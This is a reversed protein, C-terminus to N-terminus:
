NPLLNNSQVVPSVKKEYFRAEIKRQLTALKCTRRQSAMRLVNYIFRPGLQLLRYEDETLNM